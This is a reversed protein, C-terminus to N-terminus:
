GSTGLRQYMPTPIKVNTSETIIISTNSVFSGTQASIMEMRDAAIKKTGDANDLGDRVLRNCNLQECFEDNPIHKGSLRHGHHDELRKRENEDVLRRGEKAVHLNAVVHFDRRARHEVRLEDCSDYRYEDDDAHLIPHERM